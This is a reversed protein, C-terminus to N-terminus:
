PQLHDFAWCMGRALPLVPQIDIRFPLKLPKRGVLGRRTCIQKAGGGGLYLKVEHVPTSFLFRLPGRLPWGREGVYSYRGGRGANNWNEGPVCGVEIRGRRTRTSGSNTMKGSGTLPSQLGHRYWTAAATHGSMLGDPRPAGLQGQGRRSNYMWSSCHHKCFALIM